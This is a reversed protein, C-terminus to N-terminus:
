NVLTPRRAPVCKCDFIFRLSRVRVEVEVTRLNPAIEELVEYAKAGGSM